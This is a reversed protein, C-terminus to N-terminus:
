LTARFVTTLGYPIQLNKRYFRENQNKASFIQTIKTNIGGTPPGRLSSVPVSPESSPWQVQYERARRPHNNNTAAPTPINNAYAHREKGTPERQNTYTQPARGAIWLSLWVFCVVHMCGGLVGFVIECEMLSAWAWVVVLLALLNATPDQDLTPCSMGNCLICHSISHLGQM